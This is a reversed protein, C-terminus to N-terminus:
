GGPGGRLSPSARIKNLRGYANVAKAMGTIAVAADLFFLLIGSKNGTAVSYAATALSSIGAGYLVGVGINKDALVKTQDKENIM